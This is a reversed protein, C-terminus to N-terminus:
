SPKGGLTWALDYDLGHRDLIAHVRAKLAEATHVTAFRFNFMVELTGPIVNTALAAPCCQGPRPSARWTIWAWVALM